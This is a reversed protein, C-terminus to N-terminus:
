IFRSRSIHRLNAYTLFAVCLHDLSNLIVYFIYEGFSSKDIKVAEIEKKLSENEELLTTVQKKLLNSESRAEGTKTTYNIQICLYVRIISPFFIIM